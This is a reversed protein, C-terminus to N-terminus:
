HKAAAATRPKEFVFLSRDTGGREGPAFVMKTRDDDPNAFINSNVILKFGAGTVEDLIVQPDIRHVTNIDYKRGSGAPANHDVILLRGGPKLAAFLRADMAKPDINNLTQDHYYMDITVLDVGKPYDIKDFDAIKYESNKHAAVFANTPAEYRAKNYPLDYMYLHGTPGIANVLIISDYNGFSGIEIVKDGTKVGAYAMVADPSRGNDRAKMAATRDGSAVAAAINAPIAPVKPSIVWGKDAREKPSAALYGDLQGYPVPKDPPATNGAASASLAATASACLAVVLTAALTRRSLM